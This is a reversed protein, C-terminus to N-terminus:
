TWWNRANLFFELGVLWGFFGFLQRVLTVSVFSPPHRMYLGICVYMRECVCVGCVCVYVCVCM